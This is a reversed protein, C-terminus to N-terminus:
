SENYKVFIIVCIIYSVFMLYHTFCIDFEMSVFVNGKSPLSLYEEKSVTLSKTLVFHLSCVRVVSQTCFQPIICVASQACFVTKEDFLSLCTM